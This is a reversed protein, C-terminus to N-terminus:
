VPPTIALVRKATAGPEERALRPVLYGPLRAALAGALAQARREEVQFHAAGIIPDLLHLYYPLAGCTFLRESLETLSEVDDNVDHLLVAQNLLVASVSRLESLADAVESDIERAHNTHVVTVIQLRSNALQALLPPTVRQPLAIPVRTHLRLREISAIAELGSLLDAFRADDLLLPDGGSLIIEAPVPRGAAELGHLETLARRWSGSEHYPYCRRFCYRCHIACAGTTLLLARNHYKHLLANPQRPRRSHHSGRHAAPHEALPDAVFGPPQPLSEAVSPWIQRLLPDHPNGPEIRRLYPEPVRLPFARQAEGSGALWDDPLELRSALEAPDRLSSRLLTRWEPETADSAASGVDARM